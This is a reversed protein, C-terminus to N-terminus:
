TLLDDMQLDEQNEREARIRAAIAAVEPHELIKKRQAKTYNGLSKQIAPITVTRGTKQSQFEALAEVEPSAQQPGVVRDKEWKDTTFDSYTARMGDM